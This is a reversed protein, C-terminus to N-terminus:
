LTREQSQNLRQDTKHGHSMCTFPNYNFEADTFLRMLIRQQEFNSFNSIRELLASFKKSAKKAPLCLMTMLIRNETLLQELFSKMKSCGAVLMVVLMLGCPKM